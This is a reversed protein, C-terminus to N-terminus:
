GQAKREVNGLRRALDGRVLGRWHYNNLVDSGGSIILRIALVYNIGAILANYITPPSSALYLSFGFTNTIISAICLAEVDRCLNGTLFQRCIRYVFLDVTAASAFYAMDSLEGAPRLAILKNFEYGSGYSVVAFAIISRLKKM